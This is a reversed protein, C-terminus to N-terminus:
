GHVARTCDYDSRVLAGLGNQADVYSQVRYRANGLVTTHDQAM